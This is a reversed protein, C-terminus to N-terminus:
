KGKLLVVGIVNICPCTFSHCLTLTLFLCLFGLRLMNFSLCTHPALAYLSISGLVYSFFSFSCGHSPLFLVFLSFNPNRPLLERVYSCPLFVYDPRCAYTLNHTRLDKGLLGLFCLFLSSVFVRIRIAM